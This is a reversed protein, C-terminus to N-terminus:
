ITAYNTTQLYRRRRNAYFEGAVLAYLFMGGFSTRAVPYDQNSYWNRKLRKRSDRITDRLEELRLERDLREIENIFGIQHCFTAHKPQGLPKTLGDTIM